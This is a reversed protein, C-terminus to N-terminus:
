RGLGSGPVQQTCGATNFANIGRQRYDIVQQRRRQVHVVGVLWHLVEIEYRVLGTFMFGIM